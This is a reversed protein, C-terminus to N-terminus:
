RAGALHAKLFRSMISFAQRSEPADIYAWFAHPLGDFVVLHNDVGALELGRCFNATDSMLFDRTSTVCLTPPFGDLKGLLPSAIPDTPPTNGLYFKILPSLDVRPSTLQSDSKRSFDAGGAFMGFAAPMPLGEAKIRAILEGGLFGGASTGYVGIEGPKHTKLLDRYVALAQDLAAPFQHEPSLPYLVAVVPIGTEAAIPINETLSGSDGMFGGGHLNLLIRRDSAKAGAKPTILRVPVGAMVQEAIEVAHRERQRAGFEKQFRNLFARNAPLDAPSPQPNKENAAVAARAEESVTPPLPLTSQAAAHGTLSALLAAAGMRAAYRYLTKKM